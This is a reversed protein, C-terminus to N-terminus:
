KIVVTNKSQYVRRSNNPLLIHWVAHLLDGTILLIIPEFRETNAIFQCKGTSFPSAPLGEANYLNANEPNDAWAYRVAVPQGIQEHWVVVTNGDIKAKAWIFQMDPGAVAFGHLESSNKAVLGSGTHAFTLVIKNGKIKMSQYIPGSHVLQKEGYAIKEAALALREGVDKKNLPHIDNWEGIDIAVVMATNKVRLTQLQADRLEAWKSESPQPRAQM